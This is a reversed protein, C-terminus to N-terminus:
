FGNCMFNRKGFIWLLNCFYRAATGSSFTAPDFLELKGLMSIGYRIFYFIFLFGPMIPHNKMIFGEMGSDKM